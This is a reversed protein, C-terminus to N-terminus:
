FSSAKSLPIQIEFESGKFNSSATIKGNMMKVFSKSLLLGLGTGKENNTGFGSKITHLQSSNISNIKDQDMGGGNDKVTLYANTKDAHYEITILGNNNTFKVANSIINRLTLSLMDKDAYVYSGSSIENKIEISKSKAQPMANQVIEYSLSGIDIMLLQPKFGHMQSSSWRLLNELLSSTSSLNNKLESAYLALKEKSIETSELLTTFSILANVPNRMDHSIVNFMKDKVNVLEELQEKQESVVKNLRITKRRSFSIFFAACLIVATLIALFINIKRNYLIETKQNLIKRDRIDKDYKSQLQQKLSLSAQLRQEGELQVQKQLFFLRQLNREQDSIKLKQQNIALRQQQEKAILIESELRGNTLDQNLKYQNERVQFDMQLKKRTIEKEKEKNYISDQMNIFARYFFLASDFKNQKEYFSSLSANANKQVGIAGIEKSISLGKRLFDVAAKANGNKELFNGSKIFSEALSQRDDDSSRIQLAKSYFDKASKVDGEIEYIKAIDEYISAILGNDKVSIAIPLAKFQLELAKQLKTAVNLNVQAAESPTLDTYINGMENYAVSTGRYSAGGEFITLAKQTYELAKVKENLGKYINGINFYCSSLADQDHLQDFIAVAKQNADLALAYDPIDIYLAGMNLYTGGAQHMKGIQLYIKLANEYNQVARLYDSIGHYSMGIKYYMLGELNKSIKSALTVSKQAYIEAHESDGNKLYQRFIKRLNDVKISDDSTHINNVRLLSDM